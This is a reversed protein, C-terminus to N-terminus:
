QLRLKFNKISLGIFIVTMVTLILTEKWIYGFGTGKIMISKIIVVFYRPPLVASVYDYVEPMNEIPFIFGSLLITPLMLGLFSIFIAQQMTDSVTSILIGLSLSMLIYLMSEALLLLLSGKVPLDFVFWSLLLIIIVNIFSLLFYPTVKGLIIQLPKLPSVLLVEMTGFEKERTITISTMLACILILILTIVGPVFMFHGKLEPNYFMRVEPQVLVGTNEGAMALERNFDAVIASAYSTILTASNPESGDAIISMSAKGESILTLGFNEAFIIVARAKGSKMVKDADDYSFLEDTKSFFGSSCIKDTIKRSVDDKSLDLFAVRADKIDTSVVFGFILIQAAPIGFLIILTRFDRFIHLFEKWVFGSFRKM